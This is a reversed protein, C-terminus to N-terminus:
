GGGADGRSCTRRLATLGAREVCCPHEAATAAVGAFFPIVVIRLVDIDAGLALMILIEILPRCCSRRGGTSCPLVWGRDRPPPTQWWRPRSGRRGCKIVKDKGHDFRGATECEKRAGDENAPGQVLERAVFEDPVIAPHGVLVLKSRANGLGGTM